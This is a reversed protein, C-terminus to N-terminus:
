KPQFVAIAEDFETELSLNYAENGTKLPGLDPFRGTLNNHCDNGVRLYDIYDQMMRPRIESEIWDLATM